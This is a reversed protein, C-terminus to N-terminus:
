SDQKSPLPTPNQNQMLYSTIQHLSKRRSPPRTVNTKANFAAWRKIDGHIYPREEASHLYNLGRAADLLIRYRLPWHLPRETGQLCDFKNQFNCVVCQLIELWYDQISLWVCACVCVCVGCSTRVGRRCLEHGQAQGQVRSSRRPIWEEHVRVGSVAAPGEGLLRESHHHEPSSVQSLSAHWM